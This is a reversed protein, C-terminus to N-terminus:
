NVHQRYAQAYREWEEDGTLTYDATGAVCEQMARAVPECQAMFATPAIDEETIDEGLLQMAIDQIHMQAVDECQKVLSQMFTRYHHPERAREELTTLLLADIPLLQRSTDFSMTEELFDEELNSMLEQLALGVIAPLAENRLIRKLDAVARAYFSLEFMTLFSTYSFHQIEMQNNNLDM